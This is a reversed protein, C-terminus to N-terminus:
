WRGAIKGSPVLYFMLLVQLLGTGLLVAFVWLASLTSSWALFVGSVLLEIMLAGVAVHRYRM